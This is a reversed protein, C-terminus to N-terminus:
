NGLSLLIFLQAINKYMENNKSHHRELIHATWQSRLSKGTTEEIFADNDLFSERLKQKQIIM